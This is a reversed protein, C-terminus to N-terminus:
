ITKDTYEAKSWGILYNAKWHNQEFGKLHQWEDKKKEVRRAADVWDNNYVLHTFFVLQSVFKEYVLNDYEVHLVEFADGESDVSDLAFDFGWKQKSNILYSASPIIDKLQKLQKLADGIYSARTLILCHDLSLTPHEISLWNQQCCTHNLCDNTILSSAQYFKREAINLEFGDKDYYRFDDKYVDAEKECVPDSILTYDFRNFM